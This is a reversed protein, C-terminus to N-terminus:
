WEALGHAKFSVWIDCWGTMQFDLLLVQIIDAKNSLQNTFWKMGTTFAQQRLSFRSSYTNSRTSLVVVRRMSYRGVVLIYKKGGFVTDSMWVSSWPTIATSELSVVAGSVELLQVHSHFVVRTNCHLLVPLFYMTQLLTSDHGTM